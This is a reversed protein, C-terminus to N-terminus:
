PPGWRRAAAGHRLGGGVVLTRGGTGHQVDGHQTPREPQTRTLVDAAQRQTLAFCIAHISMPPRYRFGLGTMSLSCESSRTKACRVARKGWWSGKGPATAPGPEAQRTDTLWHVGLFVRTFCVAAVAVAATAAGLRVPGAPMHIIHAIWLLLVCTAATTM